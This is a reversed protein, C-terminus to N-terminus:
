KETENMVKGPLFRITQGDKKRVVITAIEDPDLGLAKSIVSLLTRRSEADRQTQLEALRQAYPRPMQEPELHALQRDLQELEERITDLGMSYSKQIERIFGIRDILSADYYGRTGRGNEVPGRVPKQVLGRKQWFRLTSYDVDIGIANAMRILEHTPVLRTKATLGKPSATKYLRELWEPVPESPTPTGHGSEEPTSPPVSDLVTVRPSHLTPEHALPTNREPAIREPAPPPVHSASPAPQSKASSTSAAATPTAELHEGCKRCYASGAQNATGCKRCNFRAVSVLRTGCSKCYKSDDLNQTGCYSCLAAMTM